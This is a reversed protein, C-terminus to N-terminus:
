TKGQKEQSQLAREYCDLAEQFRELRNCLGGKHLYAITMSNDAALAQNYCDLAEDLKQLRELASGKKVLAEANAPDLALASEFRGLAGQADDRNLLMEGERLLEPIPTAGATAPEAGNGPSHGNTQSNPKPAHAADTAAIEAPAAPTHEIQYLRKELHELAGLLRLNSQEAADTSVPLDDGPGLAALAPGPGLGRPAPLVTSLQALGNVTRWQFYAMLLMAIFGIVAFAGAVIVMVRNSSQMTELESSRQASIAHELMDMRNNLAEASKAASEKAERQNEEISLQTAHLQEQLQLYARLVEQSSPEEVQVLNTSAPAANTGAARGTVVSCGLALVLLCPFFSHSNMFMRTSCGGRQRRYINQDRRTRSM